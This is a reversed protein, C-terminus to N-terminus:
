RAALLAPGGLGLALLGVLVYTARWGLLPILATTLPVFLAQGAPIAASAIGLALGPRAPFWPVLLATAPVVSAAAFGAGPLLGYFVILYLADTTVAAGVGGLAMLALGAVMIRAPDLRTALRAVAPQAVGYALLNAAAAASLLGRSAGLDLEIPRVFAAFAFRAGAALLIALTCAGLAVWGARPTDPTPRAARAATSPVPRAGPPELM